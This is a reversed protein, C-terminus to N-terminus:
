PCAPGRERVHRWTVGHTVQWITKHSVGLRRAIAGDSDGMAHARRIDRVLAETLKALPRREGCPVLHPRRHTWHRQGQASPREDRRSM